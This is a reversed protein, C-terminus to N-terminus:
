TIYPNAIGQADLIEIELAEMIEADQEQEHDFGSLHLIGHTVLHAYHDALSKNQQEAERVCVPHCIVIDGLLAVDIDPDIEFAFSLVNTLKAQGRFDRNLTLMEDAGVLRLTAETDSQGVRDWAAQAWARLHRNSPPEELEDADSAADKTARQIELNLQSVAEEAQETM